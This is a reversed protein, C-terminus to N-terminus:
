TNNGRKIKGSDRKLLWEKCIINFLVIVEMYRTTGSFHWGDSTSDFSAYRGNTLQFEDLESFTFYDSESRLNSSNLSLLKLFEKKMMDDNQRFVNGCYTGSKRACLRNLSIPYIISAISSLSNESYYANFFNHHICDNKGDLGQNRHGHLERANQYIIHLRDNSGRNM